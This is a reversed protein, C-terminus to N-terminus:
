YLCNKKIRIKLLIKYISRISSGQKIKQLSIEKYFVWKLLLIYWSPIGFFASYLIGNFSFLILKKMGLLFRTYVSSDPSTFFQVAKQWRISEDVPENDSFSKFIAQPNKNLETHRCKWNFLLINRICRSDVMCYYLLPTSIERNPYNKIFVSLSM